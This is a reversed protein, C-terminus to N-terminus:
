DLVVLTIPLTYSVNVPRNRQKGPIMVPLLGVVRIAEKELRKHPGRARINTINGNKDIKFQVYVKKKGQSLGLDQALNTNFHKAVHKSVKNQLCKKKEIKSGTCGPFVPPEEIIAFPVDKEVVEEEIVEEIEELAIFEVAESEDTETTELVTEIIEQEDAVIEIKEPAPPPPPPPKVELIRETMPIDEVIEEQFSVSSLENIYRDFSKWELAIYVLLLSLALGLQFFIKSYISLRGKSTKKVLM